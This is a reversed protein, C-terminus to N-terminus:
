EKLKVTKIIAANFGNALHGAADIEIQSDGIAIINTVTERDLAEAVKMFAKIKWEKFGNPMQKEYM